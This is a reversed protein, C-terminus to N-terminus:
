RIGTCLGGGDGYGHHASVANERDGGADDARM